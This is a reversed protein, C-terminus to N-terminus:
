LRANGLTRAYRLFRGSRRVSYRAFRRCRSPNGFAITQIIDYRPEEAKPSVEYGLKEMVKACFIATKLAQATIHPAM